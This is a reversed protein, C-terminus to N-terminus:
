RGSGLLAVGFQVGARQPPPLIHLRRRGSLDRCAEADDASACLFAARGNRAHCGDLHRSVEAAVSADPPLRHMNLARWGDRSYSACCLTGREYCLMCGAEGLTGRYENFAAILLPRVSILQLGNAALLAKLNRLLGDDVGCALTTAGYRPRSMRISWGRAAEGHVDCFRRRVVVEFARPDRAERCWPILAYNVFRNSLVVAVEAPRPGLERIHLRLEHLATEWGADVAQAPLPLAGKAVIRARLGKAFRVFAIEGPAFSVRLQDSWPGPM